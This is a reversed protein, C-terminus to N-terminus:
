KESWQPFNKSFLQTLSQQGEVIERTRKIGIVKEFGDQIADFDKMLLLAKKKGSPTLGFLYGRADTPHMSRKVFGKKELGRLSHSLNSAETNFVARLDLPRVEKDEFFLATLILGQLLHVDHRGLHDQFVELVQSQAQYMAFIPSQSLFKKIKM